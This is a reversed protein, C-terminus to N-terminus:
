VLEHRCYRRAAGRMVQTPFRSRRREEKAPKRFSCISGRAMNIKDGAKRRGRGVFLRRPFHNRQRDLQWRRIPCTRLLRMEATLAFVDVFLSIPPPRM